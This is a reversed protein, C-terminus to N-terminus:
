VNKLREFFSQRTEYIPQKWGDTLIVILQEPADPNTVDKYLYKVQVLLLDVWFNDNIRFWKQM